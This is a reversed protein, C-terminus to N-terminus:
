MAHYQQHMTKALPLTATDAHKRPHGWRGHSQSPALLTFAMSSLSSIRALMSMTNTRLGLEEGDAASRLGLVQQRALLGAALATRVLACAAAALHLQESTNAHHLQLPCPTLLQCYLASRCRPPSNAVFRRSM